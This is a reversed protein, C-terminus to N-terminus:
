PRDSELSALGKKGTTLSSKSPGEPKISPALMPGSIRVKEPAPQRPSPSEAPRASTALLVDLTQNSIDFTGAAQLQQTATEAEIGTATLLGQSAKFKAELTEVNTKGRGAQGWGTAGAKASAMLSTIDLGLKAGDPMLLTGSGSLTDRFEEQTNGSASLEVAVSGAGSLLERGTLATTVRSLDPAQLSGRIEYLPTGGGSLDVSVRAEGSAEDDLEIEALDALLKGNNVALTAAGRGLTAGNSTVSTASIRLDADIDRVLSGASPDGILWRSWNLVNDTLRLTLPLPRIYPVLELNSFALTGELMPREGSVDVSLGGTAANGDLTMTADQLTLAQDSWDLTGTARFDELGHGGVSEGTLLRLLDKGRTRIDTSNSILTFRKGRVFEGAITATLVDSEIKGSIPLRDGGNATTLSVNFPINFGHRELTGTASVVGDNKHVDCTLRGLLASSDTGPRKVTIKADRIALTRVSVKSLALLVPKLSEGPPETAEPTDAQDLTFKADEIIVDATGDQLHGSLEAANM